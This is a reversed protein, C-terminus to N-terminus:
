LYRRVLNSRGSLPVSPYTRMPLFVASPLCLKLVQRWKKIKLYLEGLPINGVNDANCAIRLNLMCNARFPIQNGEAVLEM